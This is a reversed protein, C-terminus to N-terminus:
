RRLTRTCLTSLILKWTVRIGEVMQQKKGGTSQIRRGHIEESLSITEAKQYIKTDYLRWPVRVSNRKRDCVRGRRPHSIQEAHLM